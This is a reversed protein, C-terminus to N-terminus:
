EPRKSRPKKLRNLVQQESLGHREAAIAEASPPNDSERNRRKWFRYFIQSPAQRMREVDLAAIETALMYRKGQDAMRPRGRGRKVNLNEAREADLFERRTMVQADRAATTAIVDLLLGEGTRDVAIEEELRELERM